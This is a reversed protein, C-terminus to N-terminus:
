QPREELATFPLVSPALRRYLALMEVAVQDMTRVKPIGLRLRSLLGPETLLRNFATVWAEISAPEVLLGNKEDEVLEAIGGLNSGVIPIGAAFAELVVLPGTELWQSPVALCDYAGLESIANANPFPPLLRIRRDGANVVSQKLSEAESDVALGFIDLKLRPSTIRRMAELLIDIGKERALRGVFAIRIDEDARRPQAPHNLEASDRLAHRSITLKSKDTGNRVILDYVWNSVAVIADAEAFLGKVADHHLQILESARVATMLKGNLRLEGVRKGVAVPISALATSLARSLGKGNLMCAACPASKLDGDCQESGWRLLTGRACTVTPTHYTFVVPIGAAKVTRLLRLSVGTTWSHLHVVDPACSELVKAFSRAAVPDGPGYLDALSPTGTEFRHVTLDNYRYSRQDTAPVAVEAEVDLKRLCVALAEVYIETGGVPDPYFCFPLHLTKM